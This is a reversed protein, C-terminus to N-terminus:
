KATALGSQGWVVPSSGPSLPLIDAAEEPDLRGMETGTKGGRWGMRGEWGSVEWREQQSLEESLQHSIRTPMRLLM